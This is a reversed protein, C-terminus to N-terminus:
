GREKGERCNVPGNGERAMAPGGLRRSKTWGAECNQQSRHQGLISSRAQPVSGGGWPSASDIDHPKLRRRSYQHPHLM